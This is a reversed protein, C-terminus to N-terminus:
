NLKMALLFLVLFDVIVCVSYLLIIMFCFLWNSVILESISWCICYYIHCVSRVFPQQFLWGVIPIKQLFVALTPWFGSHFISPSCGVLMVWDLFLFFCLLCQVNLLLFMRSVQFTCCLWLGWSDDRNYAMWHCGLFLWCWVVNNGICHNFCSWSTFSAFLYICEMYYLPVCIMLILPICPLM